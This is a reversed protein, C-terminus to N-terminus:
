EQKGQEDHSGMASSIGQTFDIRHLIRDALGYKAEEREREFNSKKWAFSGYIINPLIQAVCSKEWQEM